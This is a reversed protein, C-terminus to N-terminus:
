ASELLVPRNRSRLGAPDDRAGYTGGPESTRLFLIATCAHQGGPRTHTSRRFVACRFSLCRVQDSRSFELGYGDAGASRRCLGSARGAPPMRSTTWLCKRCSRNRSCCPLWEAPGRNEVLHAAAPQAGRCIPVRGGMTKRCVTALYPSWNELDTLHEGSPWDGCGEALHLQTM